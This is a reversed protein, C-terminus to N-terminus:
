RTPPMAQPRLYRRLRGSYGYAALTLLVALVLVGLRWVDPGGRAFFASVQGGALLLGVWMGNTVARLLMRATAATLAEDGAAPAKGRRVVRAARRRSERPAAQVESTSPGTLRSMSRFTGVVAVGAVALGVWVAWRQGFAAAIVAVGLVVLLVRASARTRDAWRGVEAAESQAVSSESM